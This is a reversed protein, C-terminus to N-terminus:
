CDTLVEGNNEGGTAPPRHSTQVEKACLEVAQHVDSFRADDSHQKKSFMEKIVSFLGPKDNEPKEDTFELHTEEAATFVNDKSQKRESLPSSQANASFQLM